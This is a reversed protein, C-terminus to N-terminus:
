NVLGAAKLEHAIKSTASSIFASDTVNLLGNGQVRIEGRWAVNGTLRDFLGLQGFAVRSYGYLPTSVSQGSASGYAAGNWYATNGYFNMSGSATASASTSSTTITGFYRTDSQDAVLAIILVADAGSAQLYKEVEDATYQRTPPLVSKGSVCPTPAVKECILREVEVSADLAMGQAFVVLATFQKTAFAPDRFATIKSTACGSLLCASILLCAIRRM